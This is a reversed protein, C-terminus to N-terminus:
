GNARHEQCVSKTQLVPKRVGQYNRQLNMPVKKNIITVSLDENLSKGHVYM